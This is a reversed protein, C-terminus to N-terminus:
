RSHGSIHIFGLFKFTEPKGLGRPRQNKAAHRGFEM